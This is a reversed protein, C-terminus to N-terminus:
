MRRTQDRLSEVIEHSAAQLDALHDRVM